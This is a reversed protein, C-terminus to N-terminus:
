ANECYRKTIKKNFKNSDNLFYKSNIINSLPKLFSDELIPNITALDYHQIPKIGQELFKDISERIHAPPYTNFNLERISKKYYEFDDISKKQINSFNVETKFGNHQSCVYYIYGNMVNCIKTLGVLISIKYMNNEENSKLRNSNAFITAISTSIFIGIISVTLSLKELSDGTIIWLHILISMTIIMFVIIIILLKENTLKSNM